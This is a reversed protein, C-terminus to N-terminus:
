EEFENTYVNKGGAANERVMKIKEGNTGYLILNKINEPLEGFPTDLSFGYKKALGEFYM